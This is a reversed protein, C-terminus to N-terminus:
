RQPEPARAGGGFLGSLFGGQPQSRSADVEARLQEVEANLNALAQEQVYVAQAMAYPAYPQQRVKEAIYREAEPDRPQRAVQELRRFIDDIVQREQANVPAEEPQGAPLHPPGALRISPAAASGSFRGVDKEKRGGSTRSGRHRRARARLGAQIGRDPDPGM